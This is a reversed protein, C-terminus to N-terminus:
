WATQMTCHAPKRRSCMPFLASGGFKGYSVSALCVRCTESATVLIDEQGRGGTWCLPFVSHCVVNSFNIEPLSCSASVQLEPSWFCLLLLAALECWTDPFWLCHFLARNFVTSMAYVAEHHEKKQRSWSWKNSFTSKRHQLNHLNM